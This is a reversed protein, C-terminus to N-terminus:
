EYIDGDNWILKGLRYFSIYNYLHKLFWKGKIILSEKKYLPKVWEYSRIVKTSLGRLRAEEVAEGYGPFVLLVENGLNKMQESLEIMALAAGSRNFDTAMYLIKM